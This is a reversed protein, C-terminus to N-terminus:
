YLPSIFIMIVNFSSGFTVPDPTDNIAHVYPKNLEQVVKFTGTTNVRNNVSDNVYIIYTIVNTYNLDTTNIQALYVDGSDWSMSYNTGNVEVIVSSILSLVDTVNTSINIITSPKLNLLWIGIM